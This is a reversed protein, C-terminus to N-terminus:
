VAQGHLGELARVSRQPVRNRDGLAPQRFVEVSSVVVQRNVGIVSWVVRHSAPLAAETLRGQQRLTDADGLRTAM